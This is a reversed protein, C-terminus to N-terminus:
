RAREYGKTSIINDYITVGVGEMIIKFQAWGSNADVSVVKETGAFTSGDIVELTTWNDIKVMSTDSATIFPNSDAITVTYQFGSKSISAVESMFGSGSGAIVEVEDGVEVTSFDYFNETVSSPTTFTTASTWTVLNDTTTQSRPVAPLGSRESTRYKITIKDKYTLPKFRLTISNFIDKSNEAFMKPTVFYGLNKIAPCPLVLKWQRTTSTLSFTDFTFAIRGLQREDYRVDSLVSIGGNSGDSSVAVGQGYDYQKVFYLKNTNSTSTLDIAAGTMADEYTQALKLTTSSQNIVFYWSNLVLGGIATTGTYFVASGTPPVTIGSVTIVDTTTNIDATDIATDSLVTNNTTSYKQYLGVKPDYCWVNGIFAPNVSRNYGDVVTSVNIYILDGDVTMGNGSMPNAATARSGWEDNKYAIPLAGLPTFGSGNFQSLRGKSDLIAVSSGYKRLSMVEPAGVGYSGDNTTNIGTWVFMMAEEYYIHTTGIYAYNGNIDISTVKYDAPLTLTQAVAWSTNVRFVKNSAGVLLSNQVPFVTVASPTSATVGAITTWTGSDQYKVAGGADTVVDSGNFLVGDQRSGPTPPTTDTASSNTVSMGFEVTGVRFLDDGVFHLGSISSFLSTVHNFDADKSEDYVSVTGQALKIYGEEDLDINRTQYLNGNVDSNNPQSLRRDASPIRFSM